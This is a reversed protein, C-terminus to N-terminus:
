IPPKAAGYTIRYFSPVVHSFTSSGIFSQEMPLIKKLPQQESPTTNLAPIQKAPVRVSNSFIFDRTPSHFPGRHIPFRRRDGVGPKLCSRRLPFSAMATIRLHSWTGDQRHGNLSSESSNAWLWGLIRKFATSAPPLFMVKSRTSTVLRDARIGPMYFSTTVKASLSWKVWSHVHVCCPLSM